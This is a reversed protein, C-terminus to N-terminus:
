QAPISLAQRLEKELEKKIEPNEKLYLRAKERGQGLQYDRFSFWTGSRKIIGHELGMDILEGEYSIGEGYIIDFETSKFPPSLKNKVIRVKVRNGIIEEGQKISAIKRIELRMSSHFKLALGGPTTEPNGFGFGTQIQQRIQNIFIACTKSKSLVGVLKRMAKSMLRAQLGVQADGMEGEIEARPVLAAVSDVVVLDIANSRVLMEVIELAQEGTDPQSIILEDVNVGLARAYAPDMAHEADIFAAKGGLKHTEAIAHLALTTKGSAEPGYIEIVRGRPYGGTGTIIDLGFSGTPIVEVKIQTAEGLKMVSGPGYQKEIQKLTAELMREKELDKEDQAM